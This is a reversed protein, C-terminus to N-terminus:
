SKVGHIERYISQATGVGVKPIRMWDVEDATALRIPTKFLKAADDSLKVGIHELDAAWKRVLPPKGSLTPLNLKQMALLSTHDLWRKSFYHFIETIDFATQEIDRTYIVHVGSLSVSFLYRRLKAYMVTRGAPKCYGFTSNFGEMLLGNDSHPKFAGEIILFSVKYLQAMGIRQYGTYRADDVCNLFDHIKKREVGVLISGSPGNGEMAADGFALESLECKVGRAKVYPLLERSGVRSDILIM